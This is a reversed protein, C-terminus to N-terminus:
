PNTLANLLTNKPKPVNMTLRYSPGFKFIKYTPGSFVLQVGDQSEIFSVLTNKDVTEMERWAEMM